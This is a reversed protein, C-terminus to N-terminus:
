AGSSPAGVRAVRLPRLYRLNPTCMHDSAESPKIAIAPRADASRKPSIPAIVTGSRSLTAAWRADRGLNTSVRRRRSGVFLARAHAAGRPYVTRASM